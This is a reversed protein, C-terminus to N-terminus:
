GGPKWCKDVSMIGVARELSMQRMVFEMQKADDKALLPLLDRPMPANVKVREAWQKMEAVEIEITARNLPRDIHASDKCSTYPTNADPMEHDMTNAAQTGRSRFPETISPATQPDIPLELQNRFLSLIPASTSLSLIFKDPSVITRLSSLCFPM